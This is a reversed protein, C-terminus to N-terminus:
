GKTIVSPASGTLRALLFSFTEDDPIPASYYYGQVMVGGLKKLAAMEERTEVGEVVCDLGMDRSLALLSKVIKYSVPSKHLDTVFSRDIKIKTLPLAHLRTLSSYGTGFDDLSIGCGLLRLMSISKEVQEFDHTFATETIELDLRRPDFGSGEIIAVLALVGEPSNLDYASLNFSLRVEGEWSIATSLAKRLLPRTLQGIIGAREAIPIFQAPPVRGLTPSTWRALAEFGITTQSKLDIIPQFVVTFEDDFNALKLAQEIRADSNIQARHEDSFLVARGRRSSKGHYLAYDAREFIQEATSAIEPYVAIGVSGSIQVTVDTLHFPIRLAECMAEGFELVAADHPASDIVFAFEDGGLRSIFVNPRRDLDSLRNGVEILLKDGMAHGYLDNVPKFGDLDIIGVAVRTNNTEANNLSNNLRSFFARRNPLGTLSDLNALRFNEASLADSRKQGEVMRIFDRSQILIVIVTAATVLTINIAIATFTLTEQSLLFAVIITGATSALILAASRVHILCFMTSIVSITMYFVVHGQADADGFPFLAVAWTSFGIGLVATLRPTRRLERLAKEATLTEGRTRWWVVLRFACIATLLLSLHITLWVPATHYFSAALMWSNVMLIFYLLPILRSLAACQAKLLEANGADISFYEILRRALRRSSPQLRSPKGVSNHRTKNKRV